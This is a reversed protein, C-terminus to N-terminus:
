IAAARLRRLFSNRSSQIPACEVLESEALIAKLLDRHLDHGSRHLRIRAQIQHGSLAFDGLADLVKHRAFENEYRLGGPNMVGSDDLVVANALSGGLALGMKQLAEVERIFGFTRAAGFDEFSTQGHIYRFDQYGIAHHDFEVSASVDLVSSPEAVGWKEGSKLEVRKRLKWVKRHARQIELGARILAAFFEASSGDSIPVEPANLEVRANDIGAAFLACMLHEVTSVTANGRGITTAMRTNVVFDVLAPIEPSGDLDTRVFRIGSDSPLPLIRLTV